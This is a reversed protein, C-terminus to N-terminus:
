QGWELKLFCFLCFLVCVISSNSYFHLAITWPLWRELIFSLFFLKRTNLELKEDDSFFCFFFLSPWSGFKNKTSTKENQIEENKKQKKKKAIEEKEHNYDDLRVLFARCSWRLWMMMWQRVLRRIKQGGSNEWKELCEGHTRCSKLHYVACM